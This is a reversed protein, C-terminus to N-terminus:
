QRKIKNSTTKDFEEKRITVKSIQKYMPLEKLVDKIETMLEKESKEENLFVEAELRANMGHEDKIPKVIVEQVCPIGQIYEEIEEPYVNKGNDLVIINKKRGTIILQDLKNIYGYDGTYFWGDKLVESTKKPNKYYGMMVVDGKVCIEGINEENPNDIRWDLCPLRFGVTRCDNLKDHNASVLPSCETIGYGNILSIGIDNFFKATESRIPAGGCVIKKLRGGFNEHIQKFFIKRMDIGIKRLGNSIKIMKNFLKTKGQKEITKWIRSYFIEVFAPVLYMYSPRYLQMNKLVDKLNDNICITAHFHLAVLIGSVAEYTHHYPLVSLGTDYITSVQLGYYVSSVLNHESLMVGKARGTTGSTYVLLKLENEDNSLNRYETKDLKEGEEIMKNFSLFKDEDKEREFGIFTKINPLKDQNRKLIEEFKKDYFVVESDSDNIITLIDQEPLGSDIPVFVGATKLVTLYATLWNYSNPGICAIHTKGYGKKTLSAGLSETRDQFEKYTVEKITENEKYKFAINDGAEEVALSMMEKLSSFKKVDYYKIKVKENKM